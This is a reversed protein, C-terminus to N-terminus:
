CLPEDTPSLVEKLKGEELRLKKNVLSGLMQPMHTIIVVADFDGKEVTSLFRKIAQSELGAMPEDLLLVRPEMALISALAVLKKEGGSLEYPVRKELHAIGLRDLWKRSVALADERSMGLNLPGFSVDEIVSPSFLQDDPDQFLLGIKKRPEKFDEEERCEKGFLLVRGSQPTLLGLIIHFLTTKGAGNGGTLAIRDGKEVVFDLGKLVQGCNPYGFSINDLRILSLEYEM